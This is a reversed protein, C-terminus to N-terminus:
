GHAVEGAPTPARTRAVPLELVFVSGQGKGPSSATLEGHMRRALQRSIYLGLGSGHAVGSGEEREFPEFLREAHSPEFGIGRDRVELRWRQAAVSESLEVHGGGYKRANDLLNELVVRVGDPDCAIPTSQRKVWAAEEKGSISERHALIEGILRDSPVVETRSARAVSRQFALITEVLHELRDCEAVGRQILQAQLDQPVVGSGLSQLLMRVGAVPTKLQHSTLQLMTQMRKNEAARKRAVAFLVVTLILLLLGALATEGSIMFIQRATHADLEALRRAREAADPLLELEARSLRDMALINRRVLVSWWAMLPGVTSLAAGFLFVDLNRGFFRKLPAM